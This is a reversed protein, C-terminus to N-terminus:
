WDGSKWRAEDYFDMCSLSGRGIKAGVQTLNGRPELKNATFARNLKEGM